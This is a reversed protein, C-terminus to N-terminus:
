RQIVFTTFLVDTIQEDTQQEEMVANIRTIAEERLSRQGESSSLTDLDQQEGFLMVLEHRLRPMHTEIAAEATETAVRLTIDTKLYSPREAPPGVHTVFAPAMDVYATFRPAEPETPTEAQAVAVSALLLSALYLASLRVLLRKMPYKHQGTIQYFRSPTLTEPSGSLQLLTCAPIGGIPPKHVHSYCSTSPGAAM